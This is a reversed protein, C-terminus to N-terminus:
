NGEEGKVVNTKPQYVKTVDSIGRYLDRIYKIESDTEFEDIRSKLYEKKKTGSIDLLKM